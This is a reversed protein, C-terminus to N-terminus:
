PISHIGEGGFHSVRSCNRRVQPWGSCVSGRIERRGQALTSAAPLLSCHKTDFSHQEWSPQVLEGRGVRPHCNMSCELHQWFNGQESHDRLKDSHPRSLKPEGYFAGEQWSLGSNPGRFAQNLFVSKIQLKGTPSM